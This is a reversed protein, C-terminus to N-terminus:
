NTDPSSVGPSQLPAHAHAPVIPVATKVRLTLSRPAGLNKWHERKPKLNKFYKIKTFIKVM